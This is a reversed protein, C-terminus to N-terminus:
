QRPKIPYPGYTRETGAPDGPWLSPCEKTLHLVGEKAVGLGLDVKVKAAYGCYPCFNVQSAYETNHVWLTGDGEEYCAEVAAGHAGEPLKGECRHTMATQAGRPQTDASGAPRHHLM